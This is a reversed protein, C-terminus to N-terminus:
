KLVVKKGNVIYLGQKVGSVRRGQLDYVTGENVDTSVSKIATEEGGGLSLFSRASSTTIQLYCKGAPITVDNDVLMFGVKNDNSQVGLAYINQGNGTVKGDSVLLKNGTVAAPTTSAGALTYTGAEACVLVPTGAPVSSVAALTASTTTAGTVIYASMVENDFQVDKSPAFTAWGAASVTVTEPAPVTTCYDSYTDPTGSVWEISVSTLYMAGDKSRLGIYAYDGNIALETSTGYIISGIKTGQNATNYLESAAQYASSKGYVDLTRGSATNSNWVVTVKTAKGGSTTTIIGSDSNKSRLQISNNDGASQGAYVADSTETKGSWDTYSTGTVGTFAQNLVDTKTEATGPTKTAFVAYYTVDATGMTASSVMTPATQTVGDIAETVWGRFEKGEPNTVTPFTINEGEKVEATTVSGNVSFTATHTPLATITIGYSATKGQYTVTVTQPGVQSMDPSSFTAHSTVVEASNDEYNATVIIGEHSFTSGEVFSTPYTGSLTISSLTKTEYTVAVSKVYLAKAASSPKTVTVVIEGSASGTFTYNAASTTLSQAAGGFAVGGVTVSATASVDSATSANVVVQTITGKIGSTSLKIYKVATSSTGYHIGKTNDFNSETGDSTVTWAVGDEATGSGNCKATFTLTSTEASVTLNGGGIILILALMWSKFHLQKFM